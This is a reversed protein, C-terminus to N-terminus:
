ELCSGALWRLTVQILISFLQLLKKNDRFKNYADRCNKTTAKGCFDIWSASIFWCFHENEWRCFQNDSSAQSQSWVMMLPRKTKIVGWCCYNLQSLSPWVFSLIFVVCKGSTTYVQSLKPALFFQYINFGSHCHASSLTSSFCPPFANEQIAATDVWLWITRDHFNWAYNIEYQIKLVRKQKFLVEISELFWVLSPPLPSWGFSGLGGRLSYVAM